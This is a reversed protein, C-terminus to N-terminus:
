DDPIDPKTEIDWLEVMVVAVRESQNINLYTEFETYSDMDLKIYAGKTMPYKESIMVTPYSSTFDISHVDALLKKSYRANAHTYGGLFAQKAYGYERVGLTLRNM